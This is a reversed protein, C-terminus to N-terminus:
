LVQAGSRRGVDLMEGCGTVRAGREELRNAGSSVHVYVCVGVYNFYYIKFCLFVFFM